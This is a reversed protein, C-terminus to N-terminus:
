ALGAPILSTHVPLLSEDVYAFVGPRAEGGPPIATAGARVDGLWVPGHQMTGGCYSRCGDCLGDEETAVRICAAPEAYPAKPCRCRFQPRVIVTGPEIMRRLTLADIKM